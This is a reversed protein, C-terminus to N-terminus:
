NRKGGLTCSHFTKRIGYAQQDFHAQKLEYPLTREAWITKLLM